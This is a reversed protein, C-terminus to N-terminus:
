EKKKLVEIKKDKDEIELEKDTLKKITVTEEVTQNEVSMKVTLKNKDIKYTGTVKVDSGETKIIVSLKQDKTFEITSGPPVEGGAKTIEWSGVIKKANDDTDAAPAFGALGFVIAGLMGACLHKM